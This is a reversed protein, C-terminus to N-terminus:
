LIARFESERAESLRYRKENEDHFLIGRDMEPIGPHIMVEYRQKSLQLKQLTEKDVTGTYLVSYFKIDPHSNFKKADITSLIKLLIFKVLGGNSFFDYTKRISLSEFFRENIMRIRKIGYKASLNVVIAYIGPILHIHRHSDIHTVAIGSRVVRLIQMEFEIEVARLFAKQSVSKILISMFGLDFFGASDNYTRDFHLTKGYTLNLHIGIKLAKRRKIGEVAESFYDSNAMISSHTIIGHDFGEFIAKNTGPTMGLDDANVILNNM